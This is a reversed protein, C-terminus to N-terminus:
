REVGEGGAARKGAGVRAGGAAVVVHAAGCDRGHEHGEREAQGAEEGVPRGYWGNRSYWDADLNSTNLWGDAAVTRGDM